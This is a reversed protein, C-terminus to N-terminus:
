LVDSDPHIRALKKRSISGQNNCRNQTLSPCIVWNRLKARRDSSVVTCTNLLISGRLRISISKSLGAHSVSLGPFSPIPALAIGNSKMM